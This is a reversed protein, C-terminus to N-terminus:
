SEFQWGDVLVLLGDTEADGSQALFATQGLGLKGFVDAENLSEDRGVFAALEAEGCLHGDAEGLSEIDGGVFKELGAGGADGRALLGTELEDPAHLLDFGQGGILM